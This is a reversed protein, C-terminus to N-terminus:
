IILLILPPRTVGTDDDHHGGSNNCIHSIYFANNISFILYINFIGM